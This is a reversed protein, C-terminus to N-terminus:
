AEPKKEEPTEDKSDVAKGFWIIAGVM